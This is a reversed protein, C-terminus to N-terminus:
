LSNVHLYVSKGDPTYEFSKKLLPSLIREKEPQKIGIFSAGETWDSEELLGIGLSAPESWATVKDDENWVRVKWYARSRSALPKGDYPVHIANADQVKGSNWLDAEEENLKDLETAMLIQYATSFAGKDETMMKWSFHPSTNDIALPNVLSECKLDAM